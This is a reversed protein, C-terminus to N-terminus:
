DSIDPPINSTTWDLINVCIDPNFNKDWDLTTLEFGLKALHRGVARTGSFLDLAKRNKISSPLFAQPSKLFPFNWM